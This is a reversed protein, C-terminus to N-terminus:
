AVVEWAREYNGEWTEKHPKGPRWTDLYYSWAGGVENQQPLRAPHTWLLLRAFVAALVDNDALADYCDWPQYHLSALAADIAPKTASHSLVGNVGGREEFQWWGRAPGSVQRRYVFGSEQFGIALLMAKAERSNMREPLLSLGAPLIFGRIYDLTTM